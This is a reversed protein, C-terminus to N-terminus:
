ALKALRRFRSGIMGLAGLGFLVVSAPEPIEEIDSPPSTNDGVVFTFTASEFLGPNSISQALVDLFYVGPATFAYFFHDHQEAAMSFQDSSDIGDFSDWYISNPLGFQGLSFEGPGTMGTLSFRISGIGLPVEETAIGLFPVGAVNSQPLVWVDGLGVGLGLAGRDLTFKRSDAVRVYIEDPDYEAEGALPAGDLVAGSGFHYHLHLEGAEYAVGIDAHGASYEVLASEAPGALGLVAALAAALGVTATVRRM